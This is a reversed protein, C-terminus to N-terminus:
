VKDGLAVLSRARFAAVDAIRRADRESYGACHAKVLAAIYARADAPVVPWFIARCRRPDGACRRYRRCRRTPCAIWFKLWTHLRRLAATRQEPTVPDADIEDSDDDDHM